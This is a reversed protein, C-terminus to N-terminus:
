AGPNPPRWTPSPAPPVFEGKVALITTTEGKYVYPLDRTDRILEAAGCVLCKM